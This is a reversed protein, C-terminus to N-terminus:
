SRIPVPLVTWSDDWRGGRVWKLDVSVWHYGKANKECWPSWLGHGHLFGNFRDVQRVRTADCKRCHEFELEGFRRSNAHEVRRAEVPHGCVNTRAEPLNNRKWAKV